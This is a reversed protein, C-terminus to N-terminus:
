SLSFHSVHQIKKKEIGHMSNWGCQLIPRSQESNDVEAMNNSRQDPWRQIVITCALSHWKYLIQKLNISQVIIFYFPSAYKIHWVLIELALSMFTSWARSSNFIHEDGAWWLNVYQTKHLSEFLKLGLHSQLM